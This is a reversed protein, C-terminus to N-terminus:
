ERECHSTEDGVIVISMGRNSRFSLTCIHWPGRERQIWAFLTGRGESGHVPIQLDANGGNAGEVVHGHVFIGLSIHSGVAENLQGSNQATESALRALRRNAGYHHLAILALAVILLFITVGRWHWTDSSM